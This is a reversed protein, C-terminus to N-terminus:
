KGKGIHSVFANLSARCTLFFNLLGAKTVGGDLDLDLELVPDDSDDLYARSYRKGKNWENIAKLSTKDKFGSYFQISKGDDAVFLTHGYGEMKWQVTKGTKSIEVSYGESAMLKYLQQVSITSYISEGKQASVPSSFLPSEGKQALVPSSFLLTMAFVLVVFGTLGMSQRGAMKM